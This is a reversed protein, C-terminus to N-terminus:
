AELKRCLRRKLNRIRRQDERDVDDKNVLGSLVISGKHLGWFILHADREDIKLTIM